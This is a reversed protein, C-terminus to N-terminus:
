RYQVNYLYDSVIRGTKLGEVTVDDAYAYPHIISGCVFIGKQSTELQKSVELIKGKDGLKLSLGELLDIEPMLDVSLLVCDCELVETSESVIKRDLKVEGIKIKEVREVGTVEVIISSLKVPINFEEIINNVSKRDCVIYPKEEIIAKIKAGELILRRAVILARESSGVIVIEKGPLYGHLNVFRQATGITYVGTLKNNVINMNGTYMERSGTSVIIAKFQRKVIGENPNVYTVIKNEDINLVMTNLKYEIKLADIDNILNQIYEPGTMRMGLFKKGFDDHICQNVTGGLCEERELLMINDIGDQKAGIAAAMGSVGGGIILLDSIEM